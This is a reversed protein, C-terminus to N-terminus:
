DKYYCLSWKTDSELNLFEDFDWLKWNNQNSNPSIQELEFLYIGWDPQLDQDLFAADPRFETGKLKTSYYYNFHIYSEEMGGGEPSYFDKLSLLKRM